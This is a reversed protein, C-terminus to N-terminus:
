FDEPLILDSELASVFREIQEEMNARILAQLDELLAETGRDLQLDFHDVVHQEYVGTSTSECNPCRLDVEWQGPSVEAWDVPLVLNCECSACHTLDTISEGGVHPEHGAEAAHPTDFYVVEIAKGSPLVVRRVFQTHDPQHSMVSERCAM